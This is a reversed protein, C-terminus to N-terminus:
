MEQSSRGKESVRVAWKSRSRQRENDILGKIRNQRAEQGYQSRPKNRASFDKKPSRDLLPATTTKAKLKVKTDPKSALRAKTEEIVQERNKDHIRKHQMIVTDVFMRRRRMMLKKRQAKTLGKRRSSFIPLMRFISGVPVQGSALSVVDSALEVKTILNM